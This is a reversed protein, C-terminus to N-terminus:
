FSLVRFGQFGLVMFNMLSYCWCNQFCLYLFEALGMCFQQVPFVRFFGLVRFGQFVNIFLELLESFMSVLIRGYGPLIRACPFVRFVKFGQFWLVRFDMLSNSWCNQFCLYLFEALGLCFEQVPFFELFMCFGLVKFGLVMFDM